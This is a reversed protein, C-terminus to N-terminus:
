GKKNFYMWIATLIPALLVIFGANFSQFYSAPMEWGFIKRNTQEDAFFTLSAGAQEFCMWFFVVFIMVLIFLGCDTKKKTKTLLNIQSLGGLPKGEPCCDDNWLNIFGLFRSKVWLIFYVDNFYNLLM